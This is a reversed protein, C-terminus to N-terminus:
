DASPPPRQWGGIAIQAIGTVAFSLALILALSAVMERTPGFLVAIFMTVRLGNALLLGLLVDVGGTLLLWARAWTGVPLTAALVCLGRILLWAAIAPAAPFFGANPRLVFILGALTTIIASLNAARGVPTHRRPRGLALEAIGAALLLLGLFLVMPMSEVLPLFGAALAVLLTAIGSGLALAAPAAATTESRLVPAPGPPPRSPDAPAGSKTKVSQQPDTM